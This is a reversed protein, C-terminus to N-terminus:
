HRAVCNAQMDAALAAANNKAYTETDCSPDCVIHPVCKTGAACGYFPTAVQVSLLGTYTDPTALDADTGFIYVAQGQTANPHNTCMFVSLSTQSMTMPAFGSTVLSQAQLAATESATQTHGAVDCNTDHTDMQVLQVPGTQPSSSGDLFSYEPQTDAPLGSCVVATNQQPTTLDCGKDFRAYPTASVLQVHDLLDQGNNHMVQYLLESSGASNGTACLPTTTSTRLYTHVWEILAQTRQSANLVNGSLGDDAWNSNWAVVLQRLCYPSGSGLSGYPLLASEGNSGALELVDGNTSTCASAPPIVYLCAGITAFMSGTVQLHITQTAGPVSMGCRSSGTQDDCAVPDGQAPCAGTGSSSDPPPADPVAPADTTAKSSGGCAALLTVLVPLFPRM